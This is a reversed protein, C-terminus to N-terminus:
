VSRNGINHYIDDALGLITPDGFFWGDEESMLDQGFQMQRRGPTNLGSNGPTYSTGDSVHWFEPIIDTFITAGLDPCTDTMSAEKQRQLQTEIYSKGANYFRQCLAHTKSGAIYTQTVPQLSTVFKELDEMTELSLTTVAHCFM